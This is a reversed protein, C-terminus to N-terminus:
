DQVLEWGLLIQNNWGNGVHKRVWLQRRDKLDAENQVLDEVPM